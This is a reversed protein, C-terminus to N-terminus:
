RGLPGLRGSVMESEEVPVIKEEKEADECVTLLDNEDIRQDLDFSSLSKPKKTPTLSAFIKRLRSRRARPSMEAVLEGVEVLESLQYSSDLSPGACGLLKLRRQFMPSCGASKAVEQPPSESVDDGRPIATTSRWSVRRRAAM